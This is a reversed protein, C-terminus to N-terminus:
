SAEGKRLYRSVVIDVHHTLHGVALFALARVTFRNGSAIGCMLWARAPLNQFFTLTAGRISRFEEVHRAWPLEDAGANAASTEQEFSPLPTDFGRAFWFARAQFLRETDNIHGLVERISWKGPEYRYRSTEESIGNWLAVARDLQAELEALVDEGPVKDIYGFYYAAAEDPAPRGIPRVAVTGTGLQAEM